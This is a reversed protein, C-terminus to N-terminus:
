VGSAAGSRSTGEMRLIDAEIQHILGQQRNLEQYLALWLQVPQPKSGPRALAPRSRHAPVSLWRFFNKFFGKVNGNHSPKARAQSRATLGKARYIVM